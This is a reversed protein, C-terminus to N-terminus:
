YLFYVRTLYYPGQFPFQTSSYAQVVALGCSAIPSLYPQAQSGKCLIHDQHQWHIPTHHVVLAKVCLDKTKERRPHPLYELHLYNGSSSESTNIWDQLSSRDWLIAEFWWECWKQNMWGKFSAVMQALTTNGWKSTSTAAIPWSRWFRGSMCRKTAPSAVM